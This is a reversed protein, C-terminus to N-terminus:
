QIDIIKITYILTSYAPIKKDDGHLGYALHSPIILTAIDNEHLYSMAEDLGSEVSGDGVKFVKNGENNSSYILDGTISRLEYELCVTQGEQILPGSGQKLICYRLGTGTSLMELGHRTVYDEIDAEEDNVMYRNAKEMSKKLANPDTKVQTEQGDGCAFLSLLFIFSFYKIIRYM